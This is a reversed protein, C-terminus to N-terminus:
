EAGAKGMPTAFEDGLHWHVLLAHIIIIIATVQWYGAVARSPTYVLSLAYSSLSVPVLM